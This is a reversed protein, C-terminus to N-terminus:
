KTFRDNYYIRALDLDFQNDIDIARHIPVEVGKVKGDWISSNKLIFDSKLVFAVTTMDFVDPADQRRFIKKGSNVLKLYNNKYSVM